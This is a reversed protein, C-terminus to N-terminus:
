GALKSGKEVSVRHKDTGHKSTGKGKFTEEVGGDGLPVFVVVLALQPLVDLALEDFLVVVFLLRREGIM